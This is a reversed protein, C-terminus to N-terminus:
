VDGDGGSFATIEDAPHVDSDVKQGLRQYFYVLDTALADEGEADAWAAAAAVAALADDGTIQVSDDIDFDIDIETDNM